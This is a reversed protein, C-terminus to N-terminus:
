DEALRLLIHGRTLVNWAEGFVIDWPKLRPVKEMLVGLIIICEGAMVEIFFTGSVNLLQSLLDEADLVCSFAEHMVKASEQVNLIDDELITPDESKNALSPLHM